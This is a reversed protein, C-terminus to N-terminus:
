RKYRLIKASGDGSGRVISRGDPSFAISLIRKSNERSDYALERNTVRWVKVSDDFSGSVLCHGDKPSFALSTVRDTHGKLCSKLQNGELDWFCIQNHNSSGPASHPSFALMKGDPSFALDSVSTTYKGISRILKGNKWNRLKIQGGTVSVALTEGDPSLTVREVGFEESWERSLKGTKLDWVKVTKDLSGSILFQGDKSYLISQVSKSHSPLSKPSTKKSWDWIRVAGNLSGSALQKGDPSFAMSIVESPLTTLTTLPSKLKIKPNWITAVEWIEIRRASGLALLAGNPSFITSRVPRQTAVSEPLIPAIELNNKRWSNCQQDQAIAQNGFWTSVIIGGSIPLSLLLAFPIKKLTRAAQLLMPCTLVM